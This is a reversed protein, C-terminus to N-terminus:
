RKGDQQRDAQQEQKSPQSAQQPPELLARIRALAMTAIAEVEICRHQASAQDPGNNINALTKLASEAHTLATQLADRETM